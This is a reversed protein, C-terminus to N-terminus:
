LRSLMSRQLPYIVKIFDAPLGFDTIVMFQVFHQDGEPGQILHWDLHLLNERKKRTVNAAISVLFRLICKSLHAPLSM